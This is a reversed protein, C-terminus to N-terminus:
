RVNNTRRLTDLVDEAKLGRSRLYKRAKRLAKDQIQRVGERSIGIPTLLVDTNLELKKKSM